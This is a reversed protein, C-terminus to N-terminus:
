LYGVRRGASDGQRPRFRIPGPSTPGTLQVILDDPGDPRKAIESVVLRKGATLVRGEWIVGAPRTARLFNITLNIALAVRGVASVTVAYM